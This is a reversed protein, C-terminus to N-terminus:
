FDPHQAAVLVTQPQVSMGLPASTGRVREGQKVEAAMPLTFFEEPTCV